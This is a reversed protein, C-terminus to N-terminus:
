PPGEKALQIRHAPVSTFVRRELEKGQYHLKKSYGLSYIGSVGEWSSFEFGSQVYDLLSNADEITRKM